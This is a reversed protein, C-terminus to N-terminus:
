SSYRLNHVTSMVMVIISPDDARFSYLYLKAM